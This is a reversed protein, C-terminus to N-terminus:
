SSHDECQCSRAGDPCCRTLCVACFYFGKGGHAASNTCMVVPCGKIQFIAAKCQICNFLGKDPDPNNFSAKNSNLRYSRRPQGEKHDLVLEGEIVEGNGFDHTTKNQYERKSTKPM